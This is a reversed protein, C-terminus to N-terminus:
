TQPTPAEESLPPPAETVGAIEKFAAEESPDALNAFIVHTIVYNALPLGLLLGWLGFNHEAVLLIILVALPHIKLVEGFIKPNLVYAEITHVVIVLFIVQLLLPFGGQQIAIIGIPVTSIIVGLVPIFSCFFVVVLLLTLNPIGLWWLGV